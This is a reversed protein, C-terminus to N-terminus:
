VGGVDFGKGGQSFVIIGATIFIWWEKLHTHTNAHTHTLTHTHTHSLSLFLICTHIFLTHRLSNLLKLRKRLTFVELNFVVQEFRYLYVYYLVFLM